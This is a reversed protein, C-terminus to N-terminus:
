GPELDCVPVTTGPQRSQDVAAVEKVEEGLIDDELEDDGDGVVRAPDCSALVQDVEVAAVVLCEEEIAAEVEPGVPAVVGGDRELVRGFAPGDRGSPWVAVV